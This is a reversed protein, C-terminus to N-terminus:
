HASSFSDRQSIGLDIFQTVFGRIAYNKKAKATVLAMTTAIEGCSLGVSNVVACSMSSSIDLAHLFVKNNPEVIDFALEM